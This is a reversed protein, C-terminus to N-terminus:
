KQNSVRLEKLSMDRQFPSDFDVDKTLRMSGVVVRMAMGGKLILRADASALDRLM